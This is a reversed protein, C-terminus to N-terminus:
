RTGPGSRLDALRRLERAPPTPMSLLFRLQDCVLQRGSRRRRHSVAEGAAVVTGLFEHGLVIDAEVELRGEYPHLDTGCIATHEVKLLIDGPETIRPIPVEAVEVTHPARLVVARMADAM